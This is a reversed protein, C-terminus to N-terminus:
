RHFLYRNASRAVELCRWILPRRRGTAMIPAFASSPGWPWYVGRLANSVNEGHIVQCWMPRCFRFVVPALEAIYRHDIGLVTKACDQSSVFSTFPNFRYRHLYFDGAHECCGIPFSVFFGRHLDMHRLHKRTLARVQAIMRPHIADDNDIRTTIRICEPEERRRIESLVTEETFEACYIPRLFPHHAALLAMRDQYATPTTADMFVLWHFDGETQRAVSFLCIREFLEFRRTLWGENVGMHQLQRRPPLDFKLPVNFRTLIFHAFPHMGPLM